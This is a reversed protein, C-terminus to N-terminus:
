ADGMDSEASEPSTLPGCFGSDYGDSSSGGDGSGQSSCSGMQADDDPPSIGDDSRESGHSSDFSLALASSGRSALTSSCGHDGTVVEFEPSAPAPSPPAGPAPRQHDSDPGAPYVPNPVGDIQVVLIAGVWHFGSSGTGESNACFYFSGVARATVARQLCQAIRVLLQDFTACEFPWSVFGEHARPDPNAGDM